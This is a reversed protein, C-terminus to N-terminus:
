GRLIRTQMWHLAGRVVEGGGSTEIEAFSADKPSCGGPIDAEVDESTPRGPTAPAPNYFGTISLQRLTQEKPSWIRRSLSNMGEKPQFQEM